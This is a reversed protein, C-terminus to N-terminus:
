VPQAMSLVQERTLDMKHVERAHKQVAKVLEDDGQERITKGCDCSVQKTAM